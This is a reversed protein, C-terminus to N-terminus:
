ISPRPQEGVLRHNRGPSPHSPLALAFPNRPEQSVGLYSGSIVALAFRLPLPIFSLWHFLGCAYVPRIIAVLLGLLAALLLQLLLSDLLYCVLDQYLNNRLL